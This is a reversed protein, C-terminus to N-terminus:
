GSTKSGFSADNGFMSAFDDQQPQQKKGSDITSFFDAFDDNAPKSSFPDSNFGSFPDNSAGYM